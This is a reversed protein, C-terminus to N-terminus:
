CCNVLGLHEGLKTLIKTGAGLPESGGACRVRAGLRGRMWGSGGRAIWEDPGAIGENVSVPWLFVRNTRRSGVILGALALRQAAADLKNRLSDLRQRGRIASSALRDTGCNAGRARACISGGGADCRLSVNSRLAERSRGELPNPPQASIPASGVAGSDVHTPGRRRPPAPARRGSWARIPVRRGADYSPCSPEPKASRTPSANPRAQRTGM